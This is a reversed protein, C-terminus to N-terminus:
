EAEKKTRMDRSHWDKELVTVVNNGHLVLKVGEVIVGSAGAEVGSAALGAMHRRLGEMDLHLRRQLYRLVAHDTVNIDTM